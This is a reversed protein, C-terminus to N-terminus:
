RPSPTRTMPDADCVKHKAMFTHAIGNRVLTYLLDELSRYLPRAPVLYHNWYNAFHDRGRRPDFQSGDRMLLLGLLEMGAVTTALMPYGAGGYETGSKDPPLEAMSRLDGLLYVEVWQEIFADLEM